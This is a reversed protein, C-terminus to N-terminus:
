ATVPLGLVGLISIIFAFLAFIEVMAAMIIAKSLMKDQKGILNIGAVSVNGQMIASACGVFGIASCIGILAYGEEVTLHAMASGGLVNIKVFIALFAVVFGYLGQSAPILQLVLVNGFKSTDKSLLGAAAQGARSVGIASGAGSLIVAIAAGLIGYVNGLTM